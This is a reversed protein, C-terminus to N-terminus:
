EAIYTTKNNLTFGIILGPGEYNFAALLDVTNKHEALKLLTRCNKLAEAKSESSFKSLDLNIKKNSFGVSSQDDIVFFSASLNNKIIQCESSIGDLKVDNFITEVHEHASVTQVLSVLTILSLIIKKM